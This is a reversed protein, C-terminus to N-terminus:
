LAPVATIIAAGLKKQRAASLLGQYLAHVHVYGMQGAVSTIKDRSREIKGVLSAYWGIYAEHIEAIDLLRWGTSALRERLESLRPPNPLFLEGADLLPADQYGGRDVHDFIIMQTNPHAIGSLTKLAKFQDKLCYYVNFM